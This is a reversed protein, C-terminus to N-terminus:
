SQGEKMLSSSLIILLRKLVGSVMGLPLSRTKIGVGLLVPGSVFFSSSGEPLLLVLPSPISAVSAEEFTARTVLDVALCVGLPDM